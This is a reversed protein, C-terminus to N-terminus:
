PTPSRRPKPVAGPALFTEHLLIGEGDRAGCEVIQMAPDDLLERVRGNVTDRLFGTKRVVELRTIGQPGSALIVGAVRQRKSQVTPQIAAQAALSQPSM